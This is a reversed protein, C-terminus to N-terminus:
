AGALAAPTEVMIREARLTGQETALERGAPDAISAWYSGTVTTGDQGLSLSASITGTAEWTGREGAALGVFTFRAQGSGSAQWQGHGGSVFSVNDAAGLFPEVPLTDLALTGDVGLTALAPALTGQAPCLTLRWAGVFREDAASTGNTRMTKEQM